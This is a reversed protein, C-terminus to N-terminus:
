ICIHSAILLISQPVTYAPSILAAEQVQQVLPSCTVSYALIYNRSYYLYVIMECSLFGPNRDLIPKKLLETADSCQTLGESPRRAKGNPDWFPQLLECEDSSLPWCQFPPFSHPFPKRRRRIRRKLCSFRERVRGVSKGECRMWMVEALFFLIEMITKSWDQNDGSAPCMKGLWFWSEILMFSFLTIPHAVLLTWWQKRILLIDTYPLTLHSHFYVPNSTFFLIDWTFHATKLRLIIGGDQASLTGWFILLFALLM